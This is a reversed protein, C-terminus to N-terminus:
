PLALRAYPEPNPNSHCETPFREHDDPSLLGDDAIADELNFREVRPAIAETIVQEESKEGLLNAVIGAVRQALSMGEVEEYKMHGCLALCM